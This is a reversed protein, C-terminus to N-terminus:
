NVTCAANGDAWEGERWDIWEVGSWEEVGSESWKWEDM